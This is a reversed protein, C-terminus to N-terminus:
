KRAARRTNDEIDMFVLLLKSIGMLVFFYVGGPLAQVFISIFNQFIDVFRMGAWFGGLIQSLTFGFTLCLQLGYFAVVVWALIEAARSIKLIVEKNFYTGPFGTHPEKM